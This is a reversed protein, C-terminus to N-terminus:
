EYIERLQEIAPIKYFSNMKIVEQLLTRAKTYNNLKLQSLALYYKSEEYFTHDKKNNLQNLYDSAKLYNEHHYYSMGTYFLANYDAPDEKLRAELLSITATYNEEKFTKLAPSVFEKYNFAAAKEAELRKQKEEPTAFQAETHKIEPQLLDDTTKKSYDIFKLDYVYSVMNHNNIVVASEMAPAIVKSQTQIEAKAAGAAVNNRKNTNIDYAIEEKNERENLAINEQTSLAISESENGEDETVIEAYPAPEQIVPPASPSEVSHTEVENRNNTSEETLQEEEVDNKITENKDAARNVLSDSLVPSKLALQNNNPSTIIRLGVVSAIIIAVSAAAAIWIGFPVTRRRNEKRKAVNKIDASVAALVNENKILMLGDLAESCLECDVLHEEAKHTDAENLTGKLYGILRQQSLCDSPAFIKNYLDKKM